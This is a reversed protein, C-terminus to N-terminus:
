FPWTLFVVTLCYLYAFVIGINSRDKVNDYIVLSTLSIAAFKAIYFIATPNVYFHNLVVKLCFYIIFYVLTCALIKGFISNSDKEPYSPSYSKTTQPTPAVVQKRELLKLKERQYEEVKRRHECHPCTFGGYSNQCIPCIGVAM